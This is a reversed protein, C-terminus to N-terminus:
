AYGTNIAINHCYIIMTHPDSEDFMLEVHRVTKLKPCRYSKSCFYLYQTSAQVKDLLSLSCFYAHCHDQEYVWNRNCSYWALM